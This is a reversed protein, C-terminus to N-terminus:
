EHQHHESYRHREEVKNVPPPIDMAASFPTIIFLILLGSQRRPRSSPRQNAFGETKIARHGSIMGPFEDVVSLFPIIRVNEDRM